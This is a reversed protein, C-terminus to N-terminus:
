FKRPILGLDWMRRYEEREKKMQELYQEQEPTLPSAPIAKPAWKKQERAAILSEDFQQGKEKSQQFEGSFFQMVKQGPTLPGSLHVETQMKQEYHSPALSKDGFSIPDFRGFM